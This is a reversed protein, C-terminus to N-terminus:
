QNGEISVYKLWPIPMPTVAFGKVYPKVLVYSIGFFLPLSAADDVLKQEIQRYLQLRAAANGEVRASELLADIEPNRYEGVNDESASHFLMDLFNQPDPFDAIWGQDFVEDKEKKIVDPHVEPEIQRISVEVGLHQKWMAIIAELIPSAEGRGATTFTIPPLNSASGYKSQKLLERANAPNFELGVMGPNYGPMGPPLISDARKVIDRLLVTIIKDKDVAHSFAQRVRADDFPPRTANFGIYWLSFEPTTLLEKSLPNKPDLVRDIDSVSVSTIDIEGKEYMTMPIGSWLRFVAHKIRPVEGYYRDNRELILIDDEKWHRLKFPGSGNPRHWWEGGEEVNARDVVFAVPHVLKSLFYAKPADLTLRLTHDNVVSVGRIESAKGALKEKVGVIDGLMNAATKSGTGPDTARELSYKFDSSTVPRGGHFTADQRLQFPYTKGGDSTDWREAIDPVVKLSRDLTVLGSFIEQVYSGSTSDRVLAPDLTRPGVDWQILSDKRSFEVPGMQLAPSPLKSSDGSDGCAISLLPISVLLLILAVLTTKQM